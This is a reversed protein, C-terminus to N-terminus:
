KLITMNSLERLFRKSCSEVLLGNAYVGYNSYQDDNALAIHYINFDGATEYPVAREDVCAMLRYKTETVCIKDFLELSKEKQQKTLKDVLISHAGTIYLDEFLEPYKARKCVYLQDKIRDSVGENYIRTKGIMDIPVYGSLLTKVLDGKRLSQIPVYEEKDYKLCLIKTDEKFCVINFTIPVQFIVANGNSADQIALNRVGSTYLTVNNFKFADSGLVDGTPSFTSVIDGSSVDILNYVHGSIVPSDGNLYLFSFPYGSYQTLATAFYSVGTINWFKPSSSLAIMSQYGLPTVFAGTAGLSVNSRVSQLSWRYITDSFNNVSIGTYSLMNSMNTVKTINWLGLSRNFNSSGNFMNAMNTVNATNWNSVAPNYNIDRFTSSMNTIKSVDFTSFNITINSSGRFMSNIDTVSSPFAPMSSLNSAGAFAGGLSTLALGGYTSIATLRSASIITSSGFGYVSTSAPPMIKVTYSNPSSYTHDFASTLLNTNPAITTSGDGWDIVVTKTTTAIPVTITLNSSDVSYVLQMPVVNAFLAMGSFTWKYTNVLKNFFPAGVSTYFGDFGIYLNQNIPTQSSWGYLTNNVNAPSMSIGKLMDVANTVNTMNWGGLYQDFNEAMFFARGM